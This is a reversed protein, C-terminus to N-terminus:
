DGGTWSRLQEGPHAHLLDAVAVVPIGYRRAKGAKGSTTAPDAAALLDCGTKTVGRVPTLGLDRAIQELQSRPLETGDTYTAAGTFCM